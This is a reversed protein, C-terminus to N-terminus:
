FVRLQEKDYGVYKGVFGCMQMTAKPFVDDAPDCCLGENENQPAEGQVPHPM